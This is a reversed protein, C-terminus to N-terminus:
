NKLLLKQLEESAKKARERHIKASSWEKEYRKSIIELFNSAAEPRALLLAGRVDKLMKENVINTIKQAANEEFQTEKVLMMIKIFRTSFQKEEKIRREIEQELNSNQTKLKKIELEFKRIKENLIENDIELQEKQKIADNMERSISPFAFVLNGLTQLTRNPGKYRSKERGILSSVIKEKAENSLHPAADNLFKHYISLESPMSTSMWKVYQEGQRSFEYRYFYGKNCPEGYKSLCLRKDRTRKLFGMRHLRSMYKSAQAFSISLFLAVEVSDFEPKDSLRHLNLKTLVTRYDLNPTRM